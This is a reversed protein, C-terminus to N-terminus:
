TGTNDTKSKKTLVWKGHLQPLFILSYIYLGVGICICIDAVNFVSFYKVGIFDIVEGNWIREYGNAVAGSLILLFSADILISKKEYEQTRYYWLIGLIFFITLIKLAIGTLPLSFAIGPNQVFTLYLFDSWLFYMEQFHTQAYWKTALDLFILVASCACLVGFRM